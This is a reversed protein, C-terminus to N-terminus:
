PSLTGVVVPTGPFDFPVSTCLDSDGSNGPPSACMKVVYSGAPACLVDGCPVQGSGPENCTSTLSYSTGNWTASVGGDGIPTATQGAAILLSQCASCSPAWDLGPGDDSTPPLVQLPDGAGTSVSFWSVADSAWFYTLASYPGADAVPAYLRFQVTGLPACATPCTPPLASCGEAGCVNEALASACTAGTAGIASTASADTDDAVDARSCGGGLVVVAFLFLFLSQGRM